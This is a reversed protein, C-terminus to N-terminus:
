RNDMAQAIGGEIAVYDTVKLGPSSSDCDRNWGSLWNRGHSLDTIWKIKMYTRYDNPRCNDTKWESLGSDRTILSSLVHMTTQQGVLCALQHTAKLIQSSSDNPSTWNFLNGQKRAQLKAM